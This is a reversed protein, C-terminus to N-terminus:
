TCRISGPSPSLRNIGAALELLDSVTVIGVLRNNDLVPLITQLHGPGILAVAEHLTMEPRAITINALRM